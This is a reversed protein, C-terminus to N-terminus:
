EVNSQIFENLFVHLFLDDVCYSNINLISVYQKLVIIFIIVQSIFIKVTGKVARSWYSERLYILLHKESYKIYM